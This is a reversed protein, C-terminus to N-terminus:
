LTSAPYTFEPVARATDQSPGSHGKVQTRQRDHDLHQHQLETVHRCLLSDTHGTHIEKLITLAKCPLAMLPQVWVRPQQRPRGPELRAHQHLAEWRSSDSSDCEMGLPAKHGKTGTVSKAQKVVLALARHQGPIHYSTLLQRGLGQHSPRPNLKSESTATAFAPQNPFGKYDREMQM